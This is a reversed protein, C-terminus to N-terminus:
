KHLLRALIDNQHCMYLLTGDRLQGLRANYWSDIEEKDILGSNCVTEHILRILYLLFYEDYPRYKNARPYITWDSAGFSIVDFGYAKIVHFLRRGIYSDGSALGNVVRKDMDGNYIEMIKQELQRDQTPEFITEHDYNITLYLFGGSKLLFRFATMAKEINVIDMLSNGTIIDFGSKFDSEKTVQYIDMNILKIHVRGEGVDWQFMGEKQNGVSVNCKRVKDWARFYEAATTLLSEDNDIGVIEGGNILGWEILRRIMSGIGTGCDMIKLYPFHLVAKKLSDFVRMNISKDDVEEKCALYRIYDLREMGKFIYLTEDFSDTSRLTPM